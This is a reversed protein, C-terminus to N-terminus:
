FVQDQLLRENPTPKDSDSTSLGFVDVLAHHACIVHSPEDGEWEKIVLM